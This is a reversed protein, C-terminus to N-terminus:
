AVPFRSKWLAAEIQPCHGETLMARLRSPEVVRIETRYMYRAYEAAALELLRNEHLSGWYVVNGPLFETGTPQVSGIDGGWYAPGGYYCRLAILLSDRTVDNTVLAPEFPMASGSGAQRRLDDLYAPNANRAAVGAYLDLGYSHWDQTFDDEDKGKAHVVECLEMADLWRPVFNSNLDFMVWKGLEPLYVEPLNHAAYTVMGNSLRASTLTTIRTPLALRDRVWERWVSHSPGCSLMMPECSRFFSRLYTFRERYWANDDAGLYLNNAVFFDFMRLLAEKSGESPDLVLVKLYDGNVNLYYEGPVRFHIQEGQIIPTAPNVVKREAGFLPTFFEIQRIPASATAFEKAFIIPFRSEGFSFTVRTAAVTTNARAPFAAAAQILSAAGALLFFDRRNLDTM